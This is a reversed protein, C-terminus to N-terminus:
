LFGISPHLHPLFCTLQSLEPEKAMEMKRQFSGLFVPLSEPLPDWLEMVGRCFEWCVSLLHLLAAVDDRASNNWIIHSFFCGFFALCLEPSLGAVSPSSSSIAEAM